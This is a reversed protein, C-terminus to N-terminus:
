CRGSHARSCRVADRGGDATAGQKVTIGRIRKLAPILLLALILLIECVLAGEIENFFDARLILAYLTVAGIFALLAWPGLSGLSAGLLCTVSFVLLALSVATRREARETTRSDNGGAEAKVTGEAARPEAPSPIPPDFVADLQELILGTVTVHYPQVPGRRTPIVDGGAARIREVSSVRVQPTVTRAALEAVAKGPESHATTGTIMAAGERFTQISWVGQPPPGVGGKVVHQTAVPADEV